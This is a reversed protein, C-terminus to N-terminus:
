QKYRRFVLTDDKKKLVLINDNDKLEFRWSYYLDSQENILELFDENINWEFKKSVDLNSQSLNATDNQFKLGISYGGITDSNWKGILKIREKNSVIAQSQQEEEHSLFRPLLFGMIIIVISITIRLIIKAEDAFVSYAMVAMFIGLALYQVLGTVNAFKLYFYFAIFVAVLIGVKIGLKKSDM